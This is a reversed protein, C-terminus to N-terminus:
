KDLAQKTVWHQDLAGNSNLDTESFLVSLEATGRLEVVKAGHTCQSMQLMNQNEKGVKKM